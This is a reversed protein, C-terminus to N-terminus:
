RESKLDMTNIMILNGNKDLKRTYISVESTETNIVAIKLNPSFWCCEMSYATAANKAKVTYWGQGEPAIIFKTM